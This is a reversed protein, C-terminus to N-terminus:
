PLESRFVKGFIHHNKKQEFQWIDYASLPCCFITHTNPHFIASYHLWFHASLRFFQRFVDKNKDERALLAIFPHKTATKKERQYQTWRYSSWKLFVNWLSRPLIGLHKQSRNFNEIIWHIKEFDARFHKWKWGLIIISRYRSGWFVWVKYPTIPHFIASDCFRHTQTPRNSRGDDDEVRRQREAAPEILEPRWVKSKVM